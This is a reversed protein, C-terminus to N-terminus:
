ESAQELYKNYDESSMLKEKENEDKIDLEILWGKEYPSQNMNEPAEVLEENVKVVKGSLPAYIDSAAKVSEVSAFTKSQELESGAEPLEVFTIDGLASQAHDTIGVLATKGDIKVWEHDKTYLLDDPVNM